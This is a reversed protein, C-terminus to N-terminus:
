NTNVITMYKKLVFKMKTPGSAKIAVLDGDEFHSLIHQSAAGASKYVITPTKLKSALKASLPCCTIVLDFGTADIEPALAEHIQAENEGLDAIDGFVLVKRKALKRKKFINLLAHIQQPSSKIGDDFLEITKGQFEVKSRVISTQPTEYNDLSKM